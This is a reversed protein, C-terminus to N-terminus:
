QLNNLMKETEQMMRAALHATLMIRLVERVREKAGPVPEVYQALYDDLMQALVELRRDDVDGDGMQQMDYLRFARVPVENSRYLVSNHNQM